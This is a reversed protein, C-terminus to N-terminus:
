VSLAVLGVMWDMWGIWGIWGVWGNLIRRTAHGDRYNLRLPQSGVRGGEEDQDQNTYDEMATYLLVADRLLCHALSM